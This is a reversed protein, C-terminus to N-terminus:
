EVWHVVEDIPRRTKPRPEKIRYGFAVMLAMGFEAPDALKERTLFEDMEKKSFGEIACSDVKIFAAATMMNALAIYCQRCAWEFGIGDDADLKFDNKRFDDYKKIRQEFMDDPLQQVRKMMTEQIYASSAKMHSPKRALIAVYHSATPLQGQAGWTFERMRERINTNQIVLFKWPEFGFSSPSLRGAELIFAFDGQSIKKNPDFEKCAHRHTMADLFPRAAPNM